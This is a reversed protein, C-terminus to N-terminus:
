NDYAKQAKEVRVRNDSEHPKQSNKDNNGLVKEIKDM